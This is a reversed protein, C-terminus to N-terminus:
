PQGSDATYTRGAFHITEAAIGKTLEQDPQDRMFTEFRAAEDAMAARVGFEIVVRRQVDGPLFVVALAAARGGRHWLLKELTVQEADYFLKRLVDGLEEAQGGVLHPALQPDLLTLLYQLSLPERPNSRIRLNWNIRVHKTFAREVAELMAAHGEEKALFDVAPPLGEAVPGLVDRVQQYSPYGTLIIKPVARYESQKAIMLGSSDKEDDDNVLRIDLIALHIWAEDFAKRAQAVSAARLVKYESNELFEARTDLFAPDNDAFLIVRTPM